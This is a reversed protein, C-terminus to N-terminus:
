GGSATEIFVGERLLQHDVGLPGFGGGARLPVEPVLPHAPVDPAAGLANGENVAALAPGDQAIHEIDRIGDAPILGPQVRVEPLILRFVLVHYSRRQLAAKVSGTRIAEGGLQLLDGLLQRSFIPILILPVDDAGNVTGEQLPIILKVSARCKATGSSDADSIHEHGAAAQFRIVVELM